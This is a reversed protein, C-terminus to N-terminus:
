FVDLNPDSHTVTFSAAEPSLGSAGGTAGVRGREDRRYIGGTIGEVNSWDRMIANSARFLGCVECFFPGGSGMLRM